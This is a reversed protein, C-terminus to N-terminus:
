GSFNVIPEFPLDGVFDSDDVLSVFHTDLDNDTIFIWHEQFHELRKKAALLVQAHTHGLIVEMKQIEAGSQFKKSLQFNL